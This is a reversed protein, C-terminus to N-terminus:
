SRPALGPRGGTRAGSAREHDDPHALESAVLEVSAAVDVQHEEVLGVVALDLRAGRRGGRPRDGRRIDQWRTARLGQVLVERADGLAEDGGEVLGGLVADHPAHIKAQSRLPRPGKTL